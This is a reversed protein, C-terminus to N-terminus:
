SSDSVCGLPTRLSLPGKLAGRMFPAGLLMCGSSPDAIMSSRGLLRFIASDVGSMRREELSCLEPDERGRSGRATEIGSGDDPM